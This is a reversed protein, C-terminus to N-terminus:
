TNVNAFLEGFFQQVNEWFTPAPEEVPLRGSINMIQAQDAPIMGLALAQAKIEALDFGNRYTQELQAHENSLTYVYEQLAVQERHVAGFQLLSVVMLVALVVAVAIAGLSLADVNVCIKQDPELMQPEFIPLPAKKPAETVALKKAATGVTYSHQIYQIDAKRAM